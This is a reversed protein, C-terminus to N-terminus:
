NIHMLLLLLAMTSSSSDLLGSATEKEPFASTAFRPGRSLLDLEQAPPGEGGELKRVQLTPVVM